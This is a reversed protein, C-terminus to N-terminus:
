GLSLQKEIRYLQKEHHRTHIQIFRLWQRANLLGLRPHKAKQTPSAAAVLPVLENLKDNFQIILKEAEAPHIKQVMAAIREPAKIKGPPFKGLFLILWVAPHTRQSNEEAIGKICNELAILSVLNATFIHSYVEAYCWAGSAPQTQFSEPTIQGLRAAYRAVSREIGTHISKLSM